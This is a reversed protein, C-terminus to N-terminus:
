PKLQRLLKATGSSLGSHGGSDTSWWRFDMIGAAGLRMEAEGRAGDASSWGLRAERGSGVRGELHFSVQPSIAKDPVVYRARYNGSVAGDKETLLLEVYIAQYGDGVKGSDLETNYLWNGAFSTLPAPPIPIHAPAPVQALSESADQLPQVDDVRSITGPPAAGAGVTPPSTEHSDGNPDLEATSEAGAIPVSAPHDRANPDPRPTAPQPSAALRAPHPQAVSPQTGASQPDSGSESSGRLLTSLAAAGFIVVAILILAWYQLAFRAIPATVQALSSSEAPRGARHTSPRHPVGAPRQTWEQELSLDYARRTDANSLVTLMQNLRTLQREAALRLDDGTQTDPHLLRVLVRYAQRLERESATRSVGLEDYYNM